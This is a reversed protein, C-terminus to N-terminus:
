GVIEGVGENSPREKSDWRTLSSIKLSNPSATVEPDFEVEIYYEGLHNFRVRETRTNACNIRAWLGLRDVEINADDETTFDSVLGVVLPTGQRQDPPPTGLDFREKKEVKKLSGRQYM